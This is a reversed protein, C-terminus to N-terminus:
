IPVNSYMFCERKFPVVGVYRYQLDIVLVYIPAM